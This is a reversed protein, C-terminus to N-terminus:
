GVPKFGQGDLTQFQYKVLVSLIRRRAFESDRVVVLKEKESGVALVILLFIKNFNARLESYSICRLKADNLRRVGGVVSNEPMRIFETSVVVYESCKSVFDNSAILGM